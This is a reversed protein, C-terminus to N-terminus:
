IIEKRVAHSEVILPQLPCPSAEVADSIAEGLNAAPPTDNSCIIRDATRFIGTELKRTVAAAM